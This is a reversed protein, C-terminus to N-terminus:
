MLCRFLSSSSVTTFSKLLTTVLMYLALQEMKNYSTSHHFFFGLLIFLSPRHGKLRGFCVLFQGLYLYAESFEAYPKFFDCCCGSFVLLCLAIFIRQRNSLTISSNGLIHLVAHMQKEFNTDQPGIDRPFVEVIFLLLFLFFQCIAFSMGGFALNRHTALISLGNFNNFNTSPMKGLVVDFSCLFRKLIPYVVKQSM